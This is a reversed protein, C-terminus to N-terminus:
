TRMRFSNRPCKGSPFLMCWQRSRARIFDSMGLSHANQGAVALSDPSCRQLSQIFASKGLSFLNTFLFAFPCITESQRDLSSLQFACTTQLGHLLPHSLLISCSCALGAINSRMLPVEPIVREDERAREMASKADLVAMTKSRIRHSM